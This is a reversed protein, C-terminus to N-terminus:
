KKGFLKKLKDGVSARRSPGVTPTNSAATAAAAHALDSNEAEVGELGEEQGGDFSGQEM